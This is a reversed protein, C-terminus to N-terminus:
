EQNSHNKSLGLHLQVHGPEVRLEIWAIDIPLDRRKSRGIASHDIQQGACAISSEGHDFEFGVFINV